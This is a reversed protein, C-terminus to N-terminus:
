SEADMFQTPFHIQLRGVLWTYKMPSPADANHQTQSEYMSSFTIPKSLLFCSNFCSNVKM